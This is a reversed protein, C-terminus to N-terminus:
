ILGERRRIQSDIKMVGCQPIMCRVDLDGCDCSGSNRSRNSLKLAPCQSISGELVLDKSDSM